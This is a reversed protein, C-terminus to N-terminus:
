PVATEEQASRPGLRDRVEQVVDLIRFFVLLVECYIRILLPGILIFLIGRVVLWGGGYTRSAGAVISVIGVIVCAGVGVWFLVEAILPTIMKRFSLFESM